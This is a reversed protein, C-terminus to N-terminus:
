LDTVNNYCVQSYFSDVFFIARLNEVLQKKCLFFFCLKCGDTKGHFLYMIALLEFMYFRVFGDNM